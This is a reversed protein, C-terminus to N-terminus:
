RRRREIEIEGTDSIQQVRLRQTKLNGREDTQDDEVVVFVEDGSSPDLGDLSDQSDEYDSFDEVDAELSHIQSPAREPPEWGDDQVAAQLSAFSDFGHLRAMYRMGTEAARALRDKGADLVRDHARQLKGVRIKSWKGPPQLGYAVLALAKRGQKLEIELGKPNWGAMATLLYAAEGIKLYTPTTYVRKEYSANLRFLLAFLDKIADKGLIDIVEEWDDRQAFVKEHATVKAEGRRGSESRLQYLFKVLVHLDENGLFHGVARALAPAYISLLVLDDRKVREFGKLIHEVHYTGARVNLHRCIEKFVRHTKMGDTNFVIFVRYLLSDIRVKDISSLHEVGDRDRRLYLYSRKNGRRYPFFVDIAGSGPDRCAFTARFFGPADRELAKIWQTGSLRRGILIALAAVAEYQYLRSEEDGDLVLLEQMQELVETKGFFAAIRLVQGRFVREQLKAPDIGAGELDDAKDESALEALREKLADVECRDNTYDILRLLPRPDKRWAQYLLCGALLADKERGILMKVLAAQWDGGLSTLRILGQMLIREHRHRSRPDRNAEAQFKVPAFVCIRRYGCGACSERLESVVQQVQRFTSDVQPREGARPLYEVQRRSPESTQSTRRGPMDKSRRRGSRSRAM